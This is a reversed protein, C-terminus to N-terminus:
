KGVIGVGGVPVCGFGLGDELLASGLEEEQRGVTGIEVWDFHSKGLEPSM